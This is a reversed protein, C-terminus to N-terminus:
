HSVIDALPKFKDPGVADRIQPLMGLLESYSGAREVALNLRFGRLGLGATLQNAVPYALLYRDEPTPVPAPALTELSPQPVVAIPRILGLRLLRDIDQPGVGIGATSQLVDDVDHKGDLMIFASRQRPTIAVSRDRLARQGLETKVYIM